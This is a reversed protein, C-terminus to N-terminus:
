LPTNSPGIPGHDDQCGWVGTGMRRLASQHEGRELPHLPLTVCDELSSGVLSIIHGLFYSLALFLLSLGAGSLNLKSALTHLEFESNPVLLATVLLVFAGPIFIVFLHVVGIFLDKIGLNM